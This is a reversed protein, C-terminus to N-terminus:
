PQGPALVVRFGINPYRDRPDTIYRRASRCFFAGQNWNYWDGGRIVRYFESAPGGQPDIAIGGPYAGHYDQCLESVNGHMDCLGWANALKQGVPHTMISGYGPDWSNGYYWAYDTLNTYGPDDGYSFRTSTWARANGDIDGHVLLFQTCSFVSGQRFV